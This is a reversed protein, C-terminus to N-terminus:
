KDSKDEGFRCDSKQLWEENDRVLNAYEEQDIVILEGASVEHLWSLYPYFRDTFGEGDFLAFFGPDQTYKVLTVKEPAPLPVKQGNIVRFSKSIPRVIEAIPKPVREWYADLLEFFRDFAEEESDTTSIIM